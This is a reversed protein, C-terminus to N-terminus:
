SDTSETTPLPVMDVNGIQVYYREVSSAVSYILQCARSLFLHTCVSVSGATVEEKMRLHMSVWEYVFPGVCLFLLTSVTTKDEQQM